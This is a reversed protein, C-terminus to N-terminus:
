DQVCWRFCATRGARGRHLLAHVPELYL